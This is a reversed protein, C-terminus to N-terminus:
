TRVEPRVFQDPELGWTWAQAELATKMTQPVRIAFSRETGCRVVLFRRERFPWGGQTRDHFFRTLADPSTPTIFLM